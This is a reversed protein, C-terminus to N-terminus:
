GGELPSTAMRDGSWTVGFTVGIISTMSTRNIMKM